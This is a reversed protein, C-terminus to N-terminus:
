QKKKNKIKVQAAMNNKSLLCCKWVLWLQGPNKERRVTMFELLLCLQLRCAARPDKQMKELHARDSRPIFKSHIHCQTIM